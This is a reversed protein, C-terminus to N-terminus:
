TKARWILALGLIGFLFNPFWAAIFPPIIGAEGYARGIALFGWLMFGLFLAIGFGVAVGGRQRRIGLPASILFCVFNAFPVAIKLYLEVMDRSTSMGARRRKGIYSTLEAFSMEEPRKEKILFDVPEEPIDLDMREFEVVRKEVGSEFQRIYGDYLVWHDGEWTMKRADIRREPRRTEDFEFIMVDRMMGRIGDYLKIFFMRGDEGQYSIDSRRASEIEPLRQLYVRKISFMRENTHPVLLESWLGAVLSLMFSVMVPALIIRRFPIGSSLMATLENNRSLGGITFLGAIVVAIPMLWKIIFPVMYIYYKIIINTPVKNEFFKDITDFINVVLYLVVFTALAYGVYKLYEVSIYRDLIGM